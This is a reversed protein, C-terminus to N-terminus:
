VVEVGDIFWTSNLHFCVHAFLMNVLGVTSHITKRRAYKYAGRTEVKKGARFADIIRYINEDTM